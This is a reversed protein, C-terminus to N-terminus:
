ESRVGYRRVVEAFRAADRRIAAALAEPPEDTPEVGLGALREALDPRRVTARSAANLQAVIAEDTGPPAVLGHWGVVSYDGLGIEGLTPVEPLAKSRTDPSVFLGRLRGARVHDTVAGINIVVGHLSGGLLDNVALAGGRYPAHTWATDTARSLQEILLHALTANGPSGVAPQTTRAARVWGQFDRAPHDARVVFIQPVRVTRHIPAFALPDFGLRPTVAGTISLTDAGALLTYGDPAARAAAAYGINSGGGPLNEVMIPQGLAEGLGRASLRAVLDQSGGPAVPVILRIGREPWAAYAPRLAPLALLAGLLSRRPLRPM